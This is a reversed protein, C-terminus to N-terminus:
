RCAQVLTQHQGASSEDDKGFVIDSLVSVGGEAVHHLNTVRFGAAPPLVDFPGIRQLSQPIVMKPGFYDDLPNGSAPSGVSGPLRRISHRSEGSFIRTMHDEFLSVADSSALRPPAIPHPAVFPRHRLSSVARAAGDRVSNLRNVSQQSLRVTEQALTRSNRALVASVAKGAVVTALLLGGELLLTQGFKQWNGERAAEVLQSGLELGSRVMALTRAVTALLQLVPGVPTWSLLLAAISLGMAIKDINDWVWKAATVVADIIPKGVYETFYDWLTDNLPSNAVAQEIQIAASDGASNRDDIAAQLRRKADNVDAAAANRQAVAHKTAEVWQQQEQPTTAAKARDYNSTAIAQQRNYVARAQAAENLAAISTAQSNSLVPVYNALATGAVEYRVRVLDLQAAVKSSSELFKTVFESCGEFQLGRLNGAASRLSTATATFQRATDRIVDPDGRIPDCSLGLPSWDYGDRASM